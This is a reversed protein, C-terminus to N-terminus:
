DISFGPAFEEGWATYGTRIVLYIRGDNDTYGTGRYCTMRGSPPNKRLGNFNLWTLGRSFFQQIMRITRASLIRQVPMVLM